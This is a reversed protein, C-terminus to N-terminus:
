SWSVDDGTRLESSLITSAIFCRNSDATM